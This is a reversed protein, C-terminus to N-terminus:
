EMERILKFLQVRSNVGVKRYINLIHKKLTNNSIFLKGCMQENNLGQMMYNLTDQERKTLKYREVAELISVKKGLKKYKEKEIYIRYAMHDKLLDMILSDRYSFDRKGSLRYLTIVGVFENEYALIIQLSYHWNNPVYVKKYYESEIRKGEHIIDSERYVMCNGGSLIGQSYDLNEYPKSWNTKCNYSVCDVLIPSGNGKSLSFEASDFDIVIKLQELFERRMETFNPNTHVKYIVSNLVVFDNNELNNM